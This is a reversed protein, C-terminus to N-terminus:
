DDRKNKTKYQEKMHDPMITFGSGVLENTVDIVLHHKKNKSFRRKIKAILSRWWIKVKTYFNTQM